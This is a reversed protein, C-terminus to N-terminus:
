DRDEDDDEDDSEDDGSGRRMDAYVERGNISQIPRFNDFGENIELLSARIDDIQDQSFEVHERILIWSIGQACSPTTTSGQYRFSRKKKPVLEGLDFIGGDASTVGTDVMEAFVDILEDFEEFPDGPEVFFGIVTTTDDYAKHVLHLEMDSQEGDIFHESLTHFHFQSFDYTVHDVVISGFGSSELNTATREVELPTIGYDFNVRPLRKRVVSRTSIAIPSQATGEGCLVNDPDLNGWNAPCTDCSYTPDDAVVIGPALLLCVFTVAIGVCWSKGM